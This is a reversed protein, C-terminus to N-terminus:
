LFFPGISNLRPCLGKLLVVPHWFIHHRYERWKNNLQFVRFLFPFITRVGLNTESYINAPEFNPLTEYPSLAQQSPFNDVPMKYQFFGDDSEQGVLLYGNPAEEGPPHELSQSPSHKSNDFLVTSAAVDSSINFYLSEPPQEAWSSDPLFGYTTDSLSEYASASSNIFNASSVATGYTGPLIFLPNLTSESYQGSNGQSIYMLNPVLPVVDRSSQDLPVSYISEM